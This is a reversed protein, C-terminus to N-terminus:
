VCQFAGFKTLIDDVDNKVDKRLSDSSRVSEATVGSLTIELQNVADRIIPNDSLNFERYLTVLEKTKEITSDFVKGRSEKGNVTTVTFTNSISTLLKVLRQAQENQLSQMIDQTQKTYTDHLDRALDNAISCRFDNSPVESIFLRAKFKARIVEKDPYDDRNFMDGQSFAMNSVISDYDSIFDDLLTYFNTEHTQWEAKFTPLYVAPLLSQSKNWGYTRENIWNDITQRYNSIAKHKINNVLLNKTFRGAGDDAKKSKTVEQSIKKDSKTANWISVDANVLVASSALSIIHKPQNLTTM